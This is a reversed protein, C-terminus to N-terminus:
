SFPSIRPCGHNVVLIKELVRELDSYKGRQDKYNDLLAYPTDDYEKDYFVVVNNDAFL